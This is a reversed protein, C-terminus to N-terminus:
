RREKIKAINKGYHQLNQLIDCQIDWGFGALTSNDGVLFGPFTEANAARILIPAPNCDLASALSQLVEILQLPRGSCINFVGTMDGKLLFVFGDAVKEIPLFDRWHQTNIPMIPKRELLMDVISPILRQKDEGTGFPLFIRGWCFQVTNDQCIKEIMRRTNDKAIGYLTSPHTPTIDEKCYGYTWDYEACTGAVVMRQGGHQCFAQALRVTADCWKINQTSNWFKGHEAYWALHLLHTPQHEVIWSYQNEQYELLDSKIFTILHNEILPATRGVVVVDYDQALLLDLIHRGIFGTAGTIAIKM